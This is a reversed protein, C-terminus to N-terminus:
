GTQDPAGTLVRPPRIRDEPFSIPQPCVKQLLLQAAARKHRNLRKRLKSFFTRPRIVSRPQAPWWWSPSRASTCLSSEVSGSCLLLTSARRRSRNPMPPIPMRPLHSNRRHPDHMTPASQKAALAVLNSKVPFELSAGCPSLLCSFTRDGGHM